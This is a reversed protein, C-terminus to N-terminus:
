RTSTTAPTAFSASAFRECRNPRLGTHTRIGGGAGQSKSGPGPRAYLSDDNRAPARDNGGCSCPRLGGQSAVKSKKWPANPGGRGSCFSRVRASRSQLIQSGAFGCQAVLEYRRGGDRWRLGSSISGSRAYRAGLVNRMLSCDASSNGRESSKGVGRDPGATTARQSISCSSPARWPGITM